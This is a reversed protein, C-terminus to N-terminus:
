RLCSGSASRLAEIHAYIGQYASCAVAYHWLWPTIIFLQVQVAAEAEREKSERRECVKDYVFSVWDKVFGFLRKDKQYAQCPTTNIASATPFLSVLPEQSELFKTEDVVGRSSSAPADRLWACVVAINGCRSIGRACCYGQEEPTDNWAPCCCGRVPSIM